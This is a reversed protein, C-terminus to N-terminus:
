RKRKKFLNFESKNEEFYSKKSVSPLTPVAISPSFSKTPVIPKLNIFSPSFSKSVDGFSFLPKPKQYKYRERAELRARAQAAKVAEEAYAKREAAKVKRELEQQYAKEARQKEQWEKYKQRFKKWLGM